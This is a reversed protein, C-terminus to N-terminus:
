ARHSNTEGAIAELLRTKWTAEDIPRAAASREKRAAMAIEVATWVVPGVVIGGLISGISRFRLWSVVAFGTVVVAFGVKQYTRWPRPPPKLVPSTDLFLQVRSGGVDIRLSVFSGDDLWGETSWATASTDGTRYDIGGVQAQLHPVLKATVHGLLREASAHDATRAPDVALAIISQSM